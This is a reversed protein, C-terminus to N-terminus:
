RPLAAPDTSVCSINITRLTTGTMANVGDMPARAKRANMGNMGNRCHRCRYFYSSEVSVSEINFALLIFRVILKTGCGSSYQICWIYHRSSYFM